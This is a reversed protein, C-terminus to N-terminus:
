TTNQEKLKIVQCLLLQLDFSGDTISNYCDAFMIHFLPAALELTESVHFWLTGRVEQLISSLNSEERM